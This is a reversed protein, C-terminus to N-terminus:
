ALSDAITTYGHRGGERRHGSRVVPGGGVAEKEEVGGDAAAGHRPGFSADDPDLEGLDVVAAGGGAQEGADRAHGSLRRRGSMHLARDVAAHGQEAPLGLARQQRDFPTDIGAETM